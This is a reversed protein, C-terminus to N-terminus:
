VSLPVEGPDDSRALLFDASTRLVDCLRAFQWLSIHWTDGRELRSLQSQPMAIQRAVDGQSHGLMQRKRRLRHGVEQAFATADM